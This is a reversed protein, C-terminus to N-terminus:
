VIFYGVVALGVLICHLEINHKPELALGLARNTTVRAIDAALLEIVSSSPASM